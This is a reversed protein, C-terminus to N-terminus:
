KINGDVYKIIEGSEMNKMYGTSYNMNGDLTGHFEYVGTVM